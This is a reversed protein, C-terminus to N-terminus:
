QRVEAPRAAPPVPVAPAAGAGAGPVDLPELLMRQLDGRLRLAEPALPDAASVGDLAALAPKLHGSRLLDRARALAVEAPRPASVPDPALSVVAGAPPQRWERDVLPKFLDRSAAFLVVAAIMAAAALIPWVRVPRPARALLGGTALDDPTHARRAAGQHQGPSAPAATLRDLRDLYAHALDHPDGNKVASALLRRAASGDGRDLAAVGEHVLEETKRQGEALAGRARDIYARARAHGRDLFLVRGWVNIADQHRGGFYHELGALLLEDIKADRDLDSRGDDPRPTDSPRPETM